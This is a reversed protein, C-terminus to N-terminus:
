AARGDEVVPFEFAVQKGTLKQYVAGFTELKYETTNRDKPDLYVQVFEVPAQLAENGMIKSVDLNRAGKVIAALMLVPCIQMATLQVALVQGCPCQVVADTWSVKLIKSGDLRYRM